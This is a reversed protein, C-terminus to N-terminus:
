GARKSPFTILATTPITDPTRREARPPAVSVMGSDELHLLAQRYNKLVYLRGNHHAHYIQETTLQKGAFSTILEDELAALPSFLSGQAPDAAPNHDLSPVDDDFTSSEKASIEKFLAM